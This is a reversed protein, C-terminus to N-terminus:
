EGDSAITSSDEGKGRNDAIYLLLQTLAVATAAVAAGGLIRDQPLWAGLGFAALAVLVSVLGRQRAKLVGLLASQFRRFTRM